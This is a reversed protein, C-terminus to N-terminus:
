LAKAPGTAGTVLREQVAARAGPGGQPSLAQASARWLEDVVDRRADAHAWACLAILDALERVAELDGIEALRALGLAYLADGALLRLDSDMGAFARPEGYHMLYAEHVVELVFARDRELPTDEFRGPGPEPVAYAALTPDVAAVIEALLSV